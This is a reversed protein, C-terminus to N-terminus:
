ADKLWSFIYGKELFCVQVNLFFHLKRQHLFYSYHQSWSPVEEGQPLCLVLLGTEKLTPCPTMAYFWWGNIHFLTFSCGNGMFWDQWKFIVHVQFTADTTSTQFKQNDYFLLFIHQHIRSDSHFLFVHLPMSNDYGSICKDNQVLM